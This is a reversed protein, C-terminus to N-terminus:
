RVSLSVQYRQGSSATTESKIVLSTFAFQISYDEVKIKEIGLTVSLGTGDLYSAEAFLLSAYNMKTVAQWLQDDRDVFYYGSLSFTLEETVDLEQGVNLQGFRKLRNETTMIFFKSSPFQAVAAGVSTKNAKLVLGVNGDMALSSQGTSINNSKVWYNYTGINIGASLSVKEKLQITNVYGLYLRNVNIFGNIKENVIDLSIFSNRSDEENGIRYDATLWATNVNKFLGTRGQYSLGITYKTPAKVLSPNQIENSLNSQYSNPVFFDNQSFGTNFVVLCLIVLNTTLCFYFHQFIKKNVM